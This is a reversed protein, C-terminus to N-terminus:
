GAANALATQINTWITQLSGSGATIAAIAVISLLGGILAYEMMTVGEDDKLFRILKTMKKEKTTQNQNPKFFIQANM